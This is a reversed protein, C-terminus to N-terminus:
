KPLDKQFILRKQTKWLKIGGFTKVFLYLSVIFLKYDITGLVSATFNYASTDNVGGIKGVLFVIGYLMCIAYMIVNELFSFWTKVFFVPIFLICAMYFLNSVVYNNITEGLLIGVLTEGLALFFCLFSSTRCLIRYILVLEILLLIGKVIEQWFKSPEVIKSLDFSFWLLGFLRAILCIIMVSVTSILLCFSFIQEGSKKSFYEKIRNM